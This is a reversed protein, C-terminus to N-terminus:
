VRMDLRASNPTISTTAIGDSQDHAPGDFEVANFDQTRDRSNSREQSFTLTDLDVNSERLLRHLEDSNRRMLDLADERDARVIINMREDIVTFEIELKGLGAPDLFLEVTSGNKASL